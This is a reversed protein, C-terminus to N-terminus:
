DARSEGSVKAELLSVPTYGACASPLLKHGADVIKVPRFCHADLQSEPQRPNSGWREGFWAISLLLTETTFFGLLSIQHFLNKM